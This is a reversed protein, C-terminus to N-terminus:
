GGLFTIHLVRIALAFMGLAFALPLIFQLWRPFTLYLHWLPRGLKRGKVEMWDMMRAAPRFEGAILGLGLFVTGWGLVPLWGGVASLCILVFGGGLYLLRTLDFKRLWGSRVLRRSRKRRLSKRYSYRDQFRRGARSVAFRKWSDRFRTSLRKTFRLKEPQAVYRNEVSSEDLGPPDEPRNPPSSIM